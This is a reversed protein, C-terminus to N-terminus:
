RLLRRANAIEWRRIYRVVPWRALADADFFARVLRPMSRLDDTPVNFRERMVVALAALLDKGHCLNRAPPVCAVLKILEGVDVTLTSRQHLVTALQQDIRTGRQLRGLRLGDFKFGLEDRASVLRFRGIEIALAIAEDLLASALQQLARDDSLLAPSVLEHLLHSVLGCDLMDSEIDVNATLVLNRAPQLRECPVDYDCDVLFLFQQEEGPSVRQLADIVKWKEGCAIIASRSVVHRGLSRFDDGGELILIGSRRSNGPTM